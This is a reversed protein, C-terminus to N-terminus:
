HAASVRVRSGALEDHVLEPAGVRETRLLDPQAAGRFGAGLEARRRQVRCDRYLSPFVRSLVIRNELAYGMGSPAQTRDGLVWAHLRMDPEPDRSHMRANFDALATDASTARRLILGDGLDIPEM